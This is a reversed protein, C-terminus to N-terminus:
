WVIVVVTRKKNRGKNYYINHNIKVNNTYNIIRSMYLAEPKITYNYSIPIFVLM